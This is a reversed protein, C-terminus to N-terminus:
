MCRGGKPRYALGGLWGTRGSEACSEVSARETEQDAFTQGVISAQESDVEKQARQVGVLAERLVVERNGRGILM